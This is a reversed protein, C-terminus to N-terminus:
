KIFEEIRRKYKKTRGSCPADCVGAKYLDAVFKKAAYIDKKDSLSRVKQMMIIIFPWLFERNFHKFEADTANEKYLNYSYVLGHALSKAMFLDKASNLTSAGNPMYFYLPLRLMVTKPRAMLVSVWWPFDEIIIGRIFPIKKVLDARYLALVPYCHRRVPRLVRLNRKRETAHFIINKVPKVRVKNYKVNRADPLIGSIDHGQLLKKRMKDHFRVDHNFLVMDANTQIAAGFTLELTQSHIFDDSDLFLIFDGTAHKMALNRADSQGGNEKDIVVFREDLAAYEHAIESTKDCSGDNVCIAQWDSFTQNKVSDLCRQLFKEVNYMPIIISIKPNKKM